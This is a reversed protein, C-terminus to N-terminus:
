WDCTEKEKSNRYTRTCETRNTTTRTPYDNFDNKRKISDVQENIKINIEEQIFDKPKDLPLVTSNKIEELINKRNKKLRKDTSKHEYPLNEESNSITNIDFDQDFTLSITGNEKLIRNIQVIDSKNFPYFNIFEIRLYSEDPMVNLLNLTEKTITLVSYEGNSPYKKRNEKETKDLMDDIEQSIEEDTRDDEVEEIEEVKPKRGRKM